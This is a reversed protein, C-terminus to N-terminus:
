VEEEDYMSDILDFLNDDDIEDNEFRDDFNTNIKENETDNELTEFDLIEDNKEINLNEDILDFNNDFSNDNVDELNDEIDDTIPTRSIRRGTKRELKADKYDVNYELGLDNYYEEADQLTVKDVSPTKDINTMDYLLNDEEDAPRELPEVTEEDYGTLNFDNDLNGFAKERISDLDVKKRSVYSSPRNEKKEVIDDKTYNKDLIGYIPSIIPTPKFVKEEKKEQYSIKSITQNTKNSYSTNSYPKPKENKLDQSYLKTEAKNYVDDMDSFDDDDFYNFKTTRKEEKIEPKIDDIKEENIDEEIIGPEIIEDNIKVKEFEEQFDIIPEEIENKQQELNKFSVPDKKIVRPKEEIEVYEEEFFANKFKQFLGM